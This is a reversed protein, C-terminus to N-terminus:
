PATPVPRCTRAGSPPSALASQPIFMPPPKSYWKRMQRRIEGNKMRDVVNPRGENVKYVRESAVGHATLFAHTGSTAIIEFGLEFRHRLRDGLRRRPNGWRSSGVQSGDADHPPFAQRGGSEFRGLPPWM